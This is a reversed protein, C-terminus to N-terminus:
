GRIDNIYKVIDMHGYRTACELMWDYNNAGRRITEIVIDIHGGRAAGYAIHNYDNACGRRMIEM